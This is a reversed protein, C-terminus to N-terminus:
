AKRASYYYNEGEDVFTGVLSLGEETLTTEYAEYGLSVSTRGTMTDSWSCIQSPATFLLRGGGTLAAAVRRILTRQVEASLLFFLGWAVIGDFTRGFFTSDEVAACEAPAGPFRARFATIMSPAADVGYLHFGREILVQSVPVGTGCGLDLVAAGPALLGSWEAVM